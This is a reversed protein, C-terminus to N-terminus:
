RFVKALSMELTAYAWAINSVDQGNGREVLMDACEEVQDLIWCASDTRLRMKAIAHVINSVDRVSMWSLGQSALVGAIEDVFTNFTPDRTNVSSIKGLQNLTTAYNVADFSWRDAEEYIRLIGKWDGQMGLQTIIQNRQVADMTMM